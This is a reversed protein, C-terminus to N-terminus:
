PSKNVPPPDGLAKCPSAGTLGKDPSDAQQMCLCLAMNIQLKRMVEPLHEDGQKYACGM